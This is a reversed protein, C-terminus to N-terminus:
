PSQRASKDVEARVAVLHLKHSVHEVWGSSYHRDIYGVALIHHGAAIGFQKPGDSNINLVVVYEIDVM